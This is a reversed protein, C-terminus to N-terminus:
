GFRKYGVRLIGGQGYATATVKIAGKSFIPFALQQTEFAPNTSSDAPSVNRLSFQAMPDDSGNTYITVIVGQSATAAPFGFRQATLSTLVYLSGSKTKTFTAEDGDHVQLTTASLFKTAYTSPFGQNLQILMQLEISGFNKYDKGDPDPFLPYYTDAM